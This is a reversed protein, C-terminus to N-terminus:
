LAVRCNATAALLWHIQARAPRGRHKAWWGTELTRPSHQPARSGHASTRCPKRRRPAVAPAVGVAVGIAQPSAPGPGPDAPEGPSRHAIITTCRRTPQAPGPPQATAAAAPPSLSYRPAPGPWLFSRAPPPAPPPPPRPSPPPPPPPPPPPRAPRP